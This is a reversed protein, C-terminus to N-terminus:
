WGYGRRESDYVAMLGACMEILGTRNCIQEKLPVIACLSAYINIAYKYSTWLTPNSRDCAQSHWSSWWLCCLHMDEFCQM